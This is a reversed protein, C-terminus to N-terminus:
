QKEKQKASVWSEITKQQARCLTLKDAPADKSITSGAGVYANKGICVPAVLQTGSGIFVGDEIITPHKNKGDYNCTITGAGLNTQAGVTADGVYSLHNVKAEPGITSKKTEVFNGIKSKELLNTGPRIRAFPGIECGCAISAQDIVSNEHITVHDAIHSDRIICNAGISVNSGLTVNGEFITNIDLSIDLGVKLSGRIDVRAPDHLTVGQEMLLKVQLSQFYRELTALQERDNVGLIEYSSKPKVTTISIGRSVAMTLVDTLYYEEQANNKSLAPLFDALVHAPFLYIGSNIEHIARQEKNADKYEVIAKFNGSDDRIIRGLQDPQELKATILGIGDSPTAKILQLLTAKSILPVDGYLVLVQHEAPIHKLSQKAAHGTGLQQKQEVWTIRKLHKLTDKVVKGQHGYIVISQKPKLSEATRLVRELLSIGAIKHLVKPKHSYMRTGQGAALIVISLNM